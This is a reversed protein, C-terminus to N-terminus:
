QEVSLHGKMGFTSHLPKDCYFSYEGAQALPVEVRVTKHAPLNQTALVEGAPSKVTFNHEMDAINEIVLTLRKRQGVVRIIDPDFDYSRATIAIGSEGPPVTVVIPPGACGAVTLVLGLVGLLITRRM